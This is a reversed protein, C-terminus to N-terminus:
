AVAVAAPELEVTFPRSNKVRRVPVTKEHATVQSKTVKAGLFRTVYDSFTDQALRVADKESDVLYCFAPESESCVLVKGDDTDSVYFLFKVEAM